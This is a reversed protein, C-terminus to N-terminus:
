KAEEVLRQQALYIYMKALANCLNNNIIKNNNLIEEYDGQGYYYYYILWDGNHLRSCRLFFKEKHAQIIIPLRDMLESALPAVIHENVKDDPDKQYFLEWSHKGGSLQVKVWWFEGLQPYGVEKLEKSLELSSVHKPKM